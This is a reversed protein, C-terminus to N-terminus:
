RTLRINRLSHSSPWRIMHPQTQAVTPSCSILSNHLRAHARVLGKPGSGSLIRLFNQLRQGFSTKPPHIARHLQQICPNCTIHVSCFTGFLPDDGPLYISCLGYMYDTCYPNPATPFTLAPCSAMIVPHAQGPKTSLSLPPGTLERRQWFRAQVAIAPFTIDNFSTRPGMGDVRRLRRSWRDYKRGLNVVAM